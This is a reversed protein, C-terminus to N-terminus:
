LWIKKTFEQNKDTKVKVIYIGNYKISAKNILITTSPSTTKMVKRGLLDYITLVNIVDNSKTKILYDSLRSQVILTNQKIDVQKVTLAKQHFRLSFREHISQARNLKFTFPKSSLDHYLQTDKDYLFIPKQSLGGQTQDIEITYETPHNLLTELGLNIVLDEQFASTGQIALKKQDILSYFSVDNNTSRLKIGDFYPEYAPSAEDFFGILIQSFDHHNSKLNLWIKSHNTSLKKSKYFNSTQNIRMSNDWVLHGQNIAEVMFGQASAVMASPTQGGSVARIGGTGITYTAYDNVSYQEDGQNFTTHHTWFYFTGNILNKNQGFHYLSDLSITSPFPNGILNFDDYEENSNESLAIATNYNGNHPTGKFVVSQTTGSEIGHPAMATYGLGVTMTGSANQWVNNDDDINDHDVDSYKATNLWFFSNQPSAKFVDEIQANEVPSAWYTYDYQNLPSTTKHISINGNNEILGHNNLMLLNANNDIHLEGDVYLDNEITLHNTSHIRVIANSNIILRCVNLDGELDSQYHGDIIATRLNDPLGNDWVNDKTFTTSGTYHEGLTINYGPLANNVENLDLVTWDLTSFYTKGTDDHCGYQRIFSLDEGWHSYDGIMDVRNPWCLENNDTSIVIIDDGNFTCVQTAIEHGTLAYSPQTVNLTFRFLLTEKPQLAPIAKQKTPHNLHPNIADDNLFSALYYTNEAIPQDSINTIEIWKNANNEYYQSIILPSLTSGGGDGQISFIFPNESGDNNIIEVKASHMKKVTPQFRITFSTSDNPKVIQQPLTDFNFVSADVGTIQIHTINLDSLGTNKIIFSKTVSNQQDTNAIGFYTNNQGLTITSNNSIEHHNGFLDIEPIPGQCFSTHQNLNSIDELEYRDWDHPNYENTPYQVKSKRRLTLDKAFLTDHGVVGILDIITNNKLLAIKDDGNFDLVSSNTSIDANVNLIERSNEILLTSFPSLSGSLALTGNTTTNNNRYITLTYNTLNINVNTPNYIEIYNNNFSHSSRGEVYESIFLENCSIIATGTLKINDLAAHDALGNQKITIILSVTATSNKLDIKLSGYSNKPLTQFNTEIQNEIVQINIYDSNEFEFIDYDLSIYKNTYASVDINNFSLTAEGSTGQNNQSNNLDHIFLFDGSINPHTIQQARNATGTDEPDIINDGNHIGFFGDQNNNFFDVNSSFPWLSTQTDFDQLTITEQQSFTIHYILIALFLVYNKQM